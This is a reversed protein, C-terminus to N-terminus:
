KDSCRCKSLPRRDAINFQGAVLIQNGSVELHNVIGPFGDYYEIGNGLTEWLNTVLNFRAISNAPLEYNEADGVMSFYGGAYLYNGVKALANVYAGPVGGVGIGASHWETGDWWAIHYAEHTGASGFHGGVFLSDGQTIMSYIEGRIGNEYDTGVPEWGFDTLKAVNRAYVNGAVSFAGGAYLGNNGKVIANVYGDYIGRNMSGDDLKIWTKSVVDWAAVYVLFYEGARTFTGNLFLKGNLFEMEQVHASILENSAVGLGSILEWNGNEWLAFPTTAGTQEDRFSGAAYVTNGHIKIRNVHADIGPPAELSEWSSGDWKGIGSVSPAEHAPYYGVAYLNGELDIDMDLIYGAPDGLKIWNTGDWLAINKLPKGGASPFIGGVFISDGRAAFALAHVPDSITTGMLGGEPSEWTETEMNWIAVGNAPQDGAFNFLGGVYIKNKHAFLEYVYGRTITTDNDVIIYRRVGNNEGAGLTNWKIGDWYAIGNADQSGAVPFQGGIFLKGGAYAVAEVSPVDGPFKGKVGNETGEGVSSWNQGDWKVISRAHVAGAVNFRGGFYINTGDTTSSLVDGMIGPVTFDDSWAGNGAFSKKLHGDGHIRLSEQVDADAIEKKFNEDFYYVPSQAIAYEALCIVVLILLNKM